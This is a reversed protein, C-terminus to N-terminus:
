RIVARKPLPKGEAYRDRAKKVALLNEVPTDSPITCDAGIIFGENGNEELLKYTYAMIEAKSGAHILSGPTQDFGGIVCRCNTFFEKGERITLDTSHLAWNFVTAPYDRYVEFDNVRGRYGCVHAINVDSYRNAEQLVAVESPKIFKEYQEQTFVNDKHLGFYIGDMGGETLVRRVLVLADELLANIGALSAIPDEALYDPYKKFTSTGYLHKQLHHIPSPLNYFIVTDPGYIERVNRAQKVCAEIYPHDEGLPQLKGIDSASEIVPYSDDPRYFLGDTMMKVFDPDFEDRFKEAGQLNQQLLQPHEMGASIVDNELYHHWFGVPVRDVREGRLAKTVWERKNM